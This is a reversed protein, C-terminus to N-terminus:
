LLKRFDLPNAPQQHRQLKNPFLKPRRTLLIQKSMPTHSQKLPWKPRLCWQLKWYEDLHFQKFYHAKKLNHLAISLLPPNAWPVCFHDSSNREEM